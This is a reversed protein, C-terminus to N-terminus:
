EEDETEREEAAAAASAGADDQEEPPLTLYESVLRGIHEPTIDQATSQPLGARLAAPGESTPWARMWQTELEQEIFAKFEPNTITSTDFPQANAKILKLILPKANELWNKNNSQDAKNTVFTVLEQIVTQEEANRAETNAGAALLADIIALRNNDLTGPLEIKTVSIAYQLPTQDNKNKAELAAGANVLIDVVAGSAAEHLAPFGNKSQANPNAGERLLEKVRTTSGSSVASLLLKDIPSSSGTSHTMAYLQPLYAAVSILTATVILHKISKM